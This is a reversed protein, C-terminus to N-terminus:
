LRLDVDDTQTTKSKISDSFKKGFAYSVTFNLNSFNRNQIIEQKLNLTNLQIERRGNIKFMDVYSLKVNFKDKFVNTAVLFSTFPREKTKSFLDYRRSDYDILLSTQVKKFLKASFNITGIVGFGSNFVREEGGSSLHNYNIGASTYLKVTKSLVLDHGLNIRGRRIRGINAKTYILTDGSNRIDQYISNSNLLYNATFSLFNKKYPKNFSFSYTDSYSQKLDANGQEFTTPDIIIIHKNLDIPTPRHLKRFYGVSLRSSKGTKIGLTASPLLSYFSRENDDMINKSMDYYLTSSFDLIKGVRFQLDSYLGLNYQKINDIEDLKYRRDTFKLGFDYLAEKFFNSKGDVYTEITLDSLGSFVKNSIEKGNSLKYFDNKSYDTYKGKVSVNHGKLKKDYVGDLTYIWYDDVTQAAFQNEANNSLITGITKGNLKYGFYDFRFFLDSTSDPTFKVDLNAEKQRNQTKRFSSQRYYGSNVERYIETETKQDQESFSFASRFLWKGSKLSISPNIGQRNLLVGKNASIKGKFFATSERKLIINIISATGDVAFRSSPNNIIEIKEIESASINKLYNLDIALGDLYLRVGAVGDLKLGVGEAYVVGPVSNLAIDANTNKIFDSGDIKYIRKNLELVNKNERGKVIVTDLFTTNPSMDIRLNKAIESLKYIGRFNNTGVHSVNIFIEDISKPINSEFRGQKDTLYSNILSDTKSYIEVTAYGLEQKELYVVGKITQGIAFCYIALMNIFFSFVIKM